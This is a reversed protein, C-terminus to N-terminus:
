RPPTRTLPVHGRDSHMDARVPLRDHAPVPRLDGRQVGALGVPLGRRRQVRRVRRRQQVVQRAAHRLRRQRRVPRVGVPEHQLGAHRRRVAHEVHLGPHLHVGAPQLRSAGRRLRLQRPVRRVPGHDRLVPACRGSLRLRRRVGRVLKTVPDCIKNNGTCDAAENCGVCAGGPDCKPTAGRGAACVTAANDTTCAAHCQHDGPWCSPSAAPCDSSSGCAACLGTGTICIPTPQACDSSQECQVCGLVPNCKQNGRCQDTGSVGCLASGPGLGNGSAGSCAILAAVAVAIFFGWPTRSNRM